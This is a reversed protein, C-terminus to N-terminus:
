DSIWIETFEGKSDDWYWISSASEFLFYAVGIGYLTFIEPEGEKCEWYGKGCATKYDGPEAIAIGMRLTPSSSPNRYEFHTVIKWEYGSPTSIHVAFGEGDIEENKVLQAYDQKGDLNFDGDVRLFKTESWSRMPVVDIEAQTPSRWGDPLSGPSAQVAIPLLMVFILRLMGM